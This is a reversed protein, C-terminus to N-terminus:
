RESRLTIEMDNSNAVVPDHWPIYGPAVATLMMNSQLQDGAIAIDFYGSRNTKVTIGSVEITAGGVPGRHEDNVHGRIHGAKKQVEIYAKSGTLQIEQHSDVLEYDEADLGVPVAQGRFNAPIDSFLAQGDAEIPAKTRNGALDMYVSGTGRLALDQPDAAGHVYVTFSFNSPAPPLKFSLIVVLLFLVVPGGLTLTGGFQKGHYKAHSSLAGFLFAAALLSFVVVVLYYFYGILGLSTLLEVKWVGLGIVSLCCLLFILTLAYRWAISRNPHADQDEPAETNTVNKEWFPEGHKRNQCVHGMELGEAGRM